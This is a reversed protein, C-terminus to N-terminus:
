SDLTKRVVAEKIDVFRYHRDFARKMWVLVEEDPFVHTMGLSQKLSSDPAQRRLQLYDQSLISLAYSVMLKKQLPSKNYDHNVTVFWRTKKKELPLLHLGIYLNKKVGSTDDEFVVRSWTFSPYCYMHFNSTLKKGLTVISESHYEFYLGIMNPSSAYEYHRINSAPVSSGFGFLNNHVYEPHRIDMANMASDQLSCPMDIEIISSVYNPNFYFPTSPPNKMVPDLSWFVKGENVVVQGYTDKEEYEFGHYPCKLCGTGTIKGDNLTSGMHKCINIASRYANDQTRWLVLPVEGVHFAFPKTFDIRDVVGVCHWFNLFSDPMAKTKLISSGLYYPPILGHVQVCLFVFGLFLRKYMISEYLTYFGNM